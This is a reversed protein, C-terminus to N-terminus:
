CAEFSLSLGLVEQVCPPLAVVATGSFLREHLLCLRNLATHLGRFRHSSEDSTIDEAHTTCSNMHVQTNVMAILLVSVNEQLYSSYTVVTGM